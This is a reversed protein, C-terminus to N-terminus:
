QCDTNSQRLWLSLISLYMLLLQTRFQKLQDHVNADRHYPHAMKCYSNKKKKKRMTKSTTNAMNTAISDVQLMDFLHRHDTNTPFIAIIAM